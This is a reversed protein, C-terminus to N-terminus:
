FGLKLKPDVTGRTERFVRGFDEDLAVSALAFEILDTDSVIGTHRKAEEVLVPSIRGGIRHSKEGLLGSHEAAKMVADFRAKSVTLVAGAGTRGGTKGTTLVSTKKSGQKNVSTKAV